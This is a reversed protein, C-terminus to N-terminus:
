GCRDVKRIMPRALRFRRGSWRRRRRRVGGRVHHELEGRGRDAAADWYHARHPDRVPGRRVRVAALASVATGVLSSQNAGGGTSDIVNQTIASQDLVWLASPARNLWAQLSFPLGSAVLLADGTADSSWPLLNSWAARVAVEGNFWDGSGEFSCKITGSVGPATWNPLAGATGNAHSWAGSTYNYGSFRPTASGTAKRAVQLYWVGASLNVGSHVESGAYWSMKENDNIAVAGLFSGGSSHPDFLARSVGAGQMQFVVAVTGFTMGSLAGTSCVLDDNIGDFLRAV